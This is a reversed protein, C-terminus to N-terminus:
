DKEEANKETNNRHYLAVRHKRKEIKSNCTM